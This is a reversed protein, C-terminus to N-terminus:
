IFNRNFIMRVLWEFAMKPTILANMKPLHIILILKACFFIM